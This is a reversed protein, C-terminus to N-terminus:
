SARSIAPDAVAKRGANANAAARALDLRQDIFKRKGRPTMAIRDVVEVAVQLEGALKRNLLDRYNSFDIAGRSLPVLRVVAEGPTDQYFQYEQVGYATGQLNSIMGKVAILSGSRGVLYETAHKPRIGRVTLRYGNIADPLAVLEASDGTDYRILPMGAFLLGTSVIRGSVGPTVIPADNEYFSPIAM